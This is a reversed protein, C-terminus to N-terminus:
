RWTPPQYPDAVYIAKLDIPDGPVHSCRACPCPEPGQYEDQCAYCGYTLGHGVEWALNILAARYTWHLQPHAHAWALAKGPLNLWRWFKMRM